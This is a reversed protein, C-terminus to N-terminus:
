QQDRLKKVQLVDQCTEILFADVSGEILGLAQEKYSDLMTNWTTQGLTLLKTGPGMSGLVFRDGDAEDCAARAISASQVNLEFAWSAVEEDFEGLVLRNAGFTNTEIADVGVDLFSAHIQKVLDPRTKTLIDTCNERGLYDGDITLEMSQVATGMAGDLIFVGSKIAQKIDQVM